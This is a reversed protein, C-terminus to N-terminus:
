GMRRGLGTLQLQMDRFQSLLTKMMDQMSHDEDATVKKDEPVVVRVRPRAAAPPESKPRPEASAKRKRSPSQDRQISDTTKVNGAVVSAWSKTTTTTPTLSKPRTDDAPQLYLTVKQDGTHVVATHMPPAAVARVAWSAVGKRIRVAQMPSPIKIEWGLQRTCEMLDAEVWEIPVNKIFFRKGAPRGIKQAIQDKEEARVRAGYRRSGDKDIRTVTGYKTFADSARVAEKYDEVEAVPHWLVAFQDRRELEPSWFVGHIGSSALLEDRGAHAARALMRISSESPKALFVELIHHALTDGLVLGLQKKVTLTTLSLM